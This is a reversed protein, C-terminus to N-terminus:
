SSDAWILSLSAPSSGALAGLMPKIPPISEPCCPHATSPTLAGWPQQLQLGAEGSDGGHWNQRREMEAKAMSHGLILTPVHLSQM